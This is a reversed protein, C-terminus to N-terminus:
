TNPSFSAWQSVICLENCGGCRPIMDARSPKRAGRADLGIGIARALRRLLRRVGNARYPNQM